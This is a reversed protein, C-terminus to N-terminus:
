WGERTQISIIDKILPIHFLTHTVLHMANASTLIDKQCKKSYPLGGKCYATKNLISFYVISYFKNSQPMRYDNSQGRHSSLEKKSIVIM